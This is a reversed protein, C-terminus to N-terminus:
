IDRGDVKETLTKILDPIRPLHPHVDLARRFIELARKEEGIEQMIMGLGALAGFHRPERALVQRIDAISQGFNKKMFHVTARRNWAEVYDPKIEVISDLLQVALDFDKEDIAAKVRSMLLDATDSGSALWLAMIRNEVLKAAEADPAAKLAGFLFEINRSRDVNTPRPHKPAEASSGAQAWAAQPAHAIVVAALVAAPFGCWLVRSFLSDMGGIHSRGRGRALLGCEDNRPAFRRLLGSAAGANQIAEGEARL